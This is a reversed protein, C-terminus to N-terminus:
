ALITSITVRNWVLVALFGYRKADCMGIYGIYPLCNTSLKHIGLDLVRTGSGTKVCGFKRSLILPWSPLTSVLRRTESVRWIQFSKNSNSEGINMWLISFFFFCLFFSPLNWSYIIIAVWQVSIIQSSILVKSTSCCAFFAGSAHLWCSVVCLFFVVLFHENRTLQHRNRPLPPTFVGRSVGADSALRSWKSLGIGRRWSWLWVIHDVMTKDNIIM